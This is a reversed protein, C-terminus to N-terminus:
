AKFCLKDHFPVNKKVFFLLKQPNEEMKRRYFVVM